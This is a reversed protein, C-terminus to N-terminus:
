VTCACPLWADLDMREEGAWRQVVMQRLSRGRLDLTHWKQRRASANDELLAAREYLDPYEHYLNRWEDLAQGPCFFCGSKTPQLLGARQIVRHCEPRNIGADVLPYKRHAFDRVRGPEDACFGVLVTDIHQNDRWKELPGVKFSKSCWRVTLFPLVACKLCFKELTEGGDLIRKDCYLDSHTLPSLRLVNLGRPELYEREFYRLYCYTKPNENGVDAFVIPGRWGQEVLMITMAVSNVGAGFSIMEDVM